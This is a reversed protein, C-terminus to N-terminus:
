YQSKKFNFTICPALSNFRKNKPSDLCISIFIILYKNLVYKLHLFHRAFLEVVVITTTLSYTDDTGTYVYM